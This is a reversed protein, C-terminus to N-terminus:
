TAGAASSLMTESSTLPLSPASLMVTSDVLAVTGTFTSPPSPFSMMVTPLPMTLPITPM